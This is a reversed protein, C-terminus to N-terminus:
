EVIGPVGLTKFGIDWGLQKLTWGFVLGTKEDCALVNLRTRRTPDLKSIDDIRKMEVDSLEILELNEKMRKENASKPCASHGHQVAWSLAVQGPSVNKEAAIAVIDKDAHIPLHSAGFPSYNTLHIGKERCYAELELEPLYPHCEVQNVAPM